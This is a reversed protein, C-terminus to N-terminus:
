IAWAQAAQLAADGNRADVAIQVAREFLNAANAKRAADLMLAFAAGGDGAQASIEGVLVEYFIEGDLVSNQPDRDASSQASALGTALAALLSLAYKRQAFRLIPSM